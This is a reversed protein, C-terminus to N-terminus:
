PKDGTLAQLIVDTDHRILDLYTPVPGDAESLSDVFLTGGYTSGSGQVVQQMPADSVTSECFVAPVENDKVFEIASAIQRPTAQQEANVAWIYKETLGADRALYSFAGECTVLARENEKLGSLGQVLNKELTELEANYATANRTYYERNEPDLEIFADRINEVYVQVNVPSMWAHPNPLGANADESIDMVEVGESVVVHPVDLEVIFQEFWAELNLGNDLILHARSAKAIDQPTPEYGHIEAGAKTISEVTIKDGGVNRAIDALVTFTTLVVPRDSDDQGSIAGPSDCGSLTAALALCALAASLQRRWSTFARIRSPNTM